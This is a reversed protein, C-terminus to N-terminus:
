TSQIKKALYLLAMDYGFTGCGCITGIAIDSLFSHHRFEDRAFINSIHVEVFPLETGLFADRLGISSHTLAGPNIICASVDDQSADHIADIIEGEHNSQVHHISVDQESAISQLRELVSDLTDSGYTQPERSGLLNLNPGNLVLIKQM